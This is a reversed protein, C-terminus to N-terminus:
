CVTRRSGGRPNETTTQRIRMARRPTGACARPTSTAKPAPGATISPHISISPHLPHRNCLSLSLSLSLAHIHRGHVPHSDPQFSPRETPPICFSLAHTHAHPPHISETHGFVHQRLTRANIFLGGNPRPILLAVRGHTWVSTSACNTLPGNMICLSIRVPPLPDLGPQLCPRGEPRIPRPLPARAATHTNTQGHTKGCAHLHFLPNPHHIVAPRM